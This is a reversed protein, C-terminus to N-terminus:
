AAEEPRRCDAFRSLETARVPDAGINGESMDNVIVTVGRGKRDDISRASLTTKGAGLGRCLVTVPLRDDTM